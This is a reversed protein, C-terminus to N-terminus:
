NGMLPGLIIVSVDQGIEVPQSGAPMDILANCHILSRIMSPKQGPLVTIQWGNESWDLHGRVFRRSGTPKPYGNSCVATIRQLDPSLGQMARLAPAALLHYGVACAAPNGSLALVLQSGCVYAAAHSGPQIRVDKFLSEAGIADMLTQVEDHGESYTGGVILLVEVSELLDGVMVNSLESSGAVVCAAPIGGDSKVLASLMPGNSDRLQGPQPTVQWPVINQSLCLIAARPQRHVELSAIGFAALLGIEAPGIRSGSSVLIGGRRFDEGPQKLNNGPKVIELPYLQDDRVDTKEHPIVALTGDPLCGGTLVGLAQRPELRSSVQDMAVRGVVQYWEWIGSLAYGDVASQTRGPLDHPANVEAACVRGSAAPISVVEATLPQAHKCIQRQAEEMSINILM